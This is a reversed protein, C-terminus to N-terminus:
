LGRGAFSTIVVLLFLSCCCPVIEHSHKTGVKLVPESKPGLKQHFCEDLETVVASADVLFSQIYAFTFHLHFLFSSSIDMGM